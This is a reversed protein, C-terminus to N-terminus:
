PLKPLYIQKFCIYDVTEFFVFFCGRPKKFPIGLALDSSISVSMCHSALTIVYMCFTVETWYLNMHSKRQCNALLMGYAETIKTTSQEEFINPYDM